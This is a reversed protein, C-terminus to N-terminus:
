PYKFDKLHIVETEGRAFAYQKDDATLLPAGAAKSAWVYVGDYYSFGKGSSLRLAEDHDADGFPLRGLRMGNFLKFQESAQSHTIAGRATATRLANGVEYAILPPAFLDFEGDTYGKVVAGAEKALDEEILFRAAVSADVVYSRM